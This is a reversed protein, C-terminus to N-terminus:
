RAKTQDLRMQILAIKGSFMRLTETHFGCETALRFLQGNMQPIVSPEFIRTFRSALSSCPQDESSSSLDCLLFCGDPHVIRRVERLAARKTEETLHHFTMNSLVLKTSQDPIALRDISSEYFAINMNGAKKRAIKLIAPDIDYGELILDPRMQRISRLVAGTGCGVDIVTSGRPAYECVVQVIARWTCGIFPRALFEYVPTLFHYHLAPIFQRSKKM